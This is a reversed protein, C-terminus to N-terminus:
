ADSDLSNVIRRIEEEILTTVEGAAQEVEPTLPNGLAFVSGELTYIILHSPLTGLIHALEIAEVVGLSHTSQHSEHLAFPKADVVIRNISGPADGSSVADILIVYEPEVQEWATILATGERQETLVVTQPLSRAQLNRAVVLGVRDDGRFDNGIGIVLVHPQRPTDSM